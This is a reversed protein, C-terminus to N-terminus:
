PQLREPAYVNLRDGRVFGALTLGARRATQVALATPASVAVLTGFGAAWAKQVLEFSARGSVFLGLGTAPLQGDLLMRGVVKDVANHRGVDERTTLVGGDPTFAAAAHVAGTTSFLSQGDLVASPVKGVVALPIPDTAPLPALRDCLTEIAEHGCLGCSSTTTGLRPTPVPARGGTEVTVVNFQSDSAAGDACYRVGTVRAGGLLGDSFCFGAALEYDNGPTRMTTSVIVGDLQITMPEEVILEDPRRRLAGHEYVTVLLSESRRRAM